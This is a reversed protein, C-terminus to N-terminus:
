SFVVNTSSVQLKSSVQQGLFLNARRLFNVDAGHESKGTEMAITPENIQIKLNMAYLYVLNQVQKTGM